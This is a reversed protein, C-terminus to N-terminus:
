RLLERQFIALVLLGFFSLLLVYIPLWNIGQELWTTAQNAQTSNTATRAGSLIPTTIEYVIWIVPVGVILGLLFRALGIPQARTDDAIGM